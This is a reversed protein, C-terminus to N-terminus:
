NRAPDDPVHKVGLVDGYFRKGIQKLVSTWLDEDDSFVHESSAPLTLWAGEQMEDELQGKGWGAHGIFLRFPGSTNQVLKSLHQRNSAIYVGRPIQAEGLQKIKHLAIIPGSVPGGMNVRDDRQCPEDSIENWLDQITNETPRNLVLGVAGEENHQVMLVVTKAFNPDGMRPSAVLLQGQLSNMSQVM